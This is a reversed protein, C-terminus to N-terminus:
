LDLAKEIAAQVDPGDAQIWKGYRKQIMAITSHGVHGAIWHMPVTGLTLMQSIFTHRCHAPPRYRVGAKECHQQFFRERLHLDSFYPTGNSRLFIPRIKKVKLTKNDRDMVEIRVPTQQSSYAFQRMLAERAPRLLKHTRTSRKTKTVKWQGNVLAHRFQVIGQHLDIVDEWALAIAESPRCGDWIMFEILDRERIQDTDTSMLKRIDTLTFPDPDEDDPLRVRIGRTPNFSYGKTKSYLDFVQSLLSVIEKITKNSLKALDKALWQQISVYDITEISQTGWRPLIHSHMKSRDSRITSPAVHSQRIDLFQAAWHGFSNSTLKQSNPFHRAYDFTGSELELKIIQALRRANDISQPTATGVIERCLEGNYRFYVRVNKGHVEYGDAM